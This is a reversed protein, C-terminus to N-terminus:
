LQKKKGHRDKQQIRLNGQRTKNFNRERSSALRSKKLVFAIRKTLIHKAIENQLGIITNRSRSDLCGIQSIM